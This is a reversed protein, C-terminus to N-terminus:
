KAAAKADRKKVPPKTAPAPKADTRPKAIASGVVTLDAVSHSKLNVKKVPESTVKTVKTQRAEVVPAPKIKPAEVVKAAAPKEVSKSIAAEKTPSKSRTARPVIPEPKKEKKPADKKTPAEKTVKQEKEKSVSKMTVDKVPATVKPV